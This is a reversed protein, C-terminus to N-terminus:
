FVPFSRPLATVDATVAGRMAGNRSAKLAQSILDM